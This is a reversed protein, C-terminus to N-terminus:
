LIQHVDFAPVRSGLLHGSLIIPFSAKMLYQYVQRFISQIKSVRQEIKLPQHSCHCWRKKPREGVTRSTSQEYILQEKFLRAKPGHGSNHYGLASRRMVADPPNAQAKCPFNYCGIKASASRIDACNRQDRRRPQAVMYVPWPRRRAGPSM